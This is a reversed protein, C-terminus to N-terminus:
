IVQIGHAALVREAHEPDLNHRKCTAILTLSNILVVYSNHRGHGAYEVYGAFANLVVTDEGMLADTVSKITADRQLAIREAYTDKYNIWHGKGPTDSRGWTRDEIQRRRREETKIQRKTKHM